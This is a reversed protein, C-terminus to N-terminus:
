NMYWKKEKSILAKVVNCVKQLYYGDQCLKQLLRMQIDLKDRAALWTTASLKAGKQLLLKIQPTKDLVPSFSSNSM